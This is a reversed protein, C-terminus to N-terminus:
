VRRDVMGGATVKKVTRFMLSAKKVMGRLGLRLGKKDEGPLVRFVLDGLLQCPGNEGLSEPITGM